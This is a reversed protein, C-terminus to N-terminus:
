RIERQRAELSPQLRQCTVADHRYPTHANLENIYERIFPTERKLFDAIAPRFVPDDIWHASWTEVPLMGRALKHEGQAGGEFVQIGHAIAYEIGQLYCTEFHLGPVYETSGWYRGFLRDAHRINLAAAIPVGHREALVLVLSHGLHDYIREFFDLNLYPPNGHELYTQVYCLYFFRLADDNIESGTLWRFTIDEETLRRRDQRLKKRKPQTLAALFDDMDQYADNQWHFQINCRFLLGAHQLARMDSEDPFLVHLSSYGEQQMLQKAGELLLLRDNHDYALLRPGPVPTFPIACVLKPHYNMGYRAYAHAWVYDFVYEGRSHSKAYLPMVARIAGNRRIALHRPAWGTRATACQTSELAELYAHSLLPHGKALADWEGASLATISDVCLIDFSM